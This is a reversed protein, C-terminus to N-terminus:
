RRASIYNDAIQTVRDLTVGGESFLATNFEVEDYGAGLESMAKDHVSHMVYAGYGYPVYVAPMEMLMYVIEAATDEDYGAEILDQKGYGFYNVQLDMLVMNMFSSYDELKRYACYLETADDNAAAAINDLLIHEVYKAWGEAFGVCDGFVTCNGQEKSKVRAYLHGPYGEHAITTLLGPTGGACTVPNLTIHEPSNVEDIPSLLYYADATSIAAVTEDMIKFDIEPEHQLEPVIQTAATKLYELMETPETLGLLLREGNKYAQFQTYTEEEIDRIADIHGVLNQFERIQRLYEGVLEFYIQSVDAEFMGTKSKFCYEYYAKGVEGYAALYGKDTNTVRGKYAKLGESLINAGRMFGDTLATDFREKYESREVDSLFRAGDLKNGIFDYLYYEDGQEYVTDLYNCMADVTYDYLPYGADARDSAYDLYTSFVGDATETMSLLDEIDKTKRFAYNEAMSAFNAVIGGEASIYSNGILAFDLAYPSDFYVLHSNVEYSFANYKGREASSLDSFRIRKLENAYAQFVDRTQEVAAQTMKNYSYYEPSEVGTYGFSGQPDVSLVNWAYTDNGMYVLTFEDLLRNLAESPNDYYYPDEGCATLGLSMGGCLTVGSLLCAITKNIKRM